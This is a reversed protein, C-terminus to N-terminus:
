VILDWHNIQLQNSQLKVKDKFFRLDQPTRPSVTQVIDTMKFSISVSSASVSKRM